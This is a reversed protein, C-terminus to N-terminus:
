LYFRGLNLDFLIRIKYHSAKANLTSVEVSVKIRLIDKTSDAELAVLKLEFTMEFGKVKLNCAMNQCVSVGTTLNM